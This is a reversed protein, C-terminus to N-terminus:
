AQWKITGDCIVKKKSEKYKRSSEVSEEVLM